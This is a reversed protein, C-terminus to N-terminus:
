WLKKPYINQAIMEQIRQITVEKDAKYTVGFWQATTDLVKVTAKQQEILNTVTAPIYFESKLENGEAKLFRIFDEGSQKFYHQSFGWFNMSVQADQPVEGGDKVSIIKDNKWGIAERETVNILHRKEDVKCVGRNVTGHESLTNKVPYGVMSYETSDSELRELYQAMVKFADAGYFDDANIVAFPENVANRAAWVAHNTGWPKTRGAPVKFGEPLDNLEQFVYDTAIKDSIKHIFRAKFAEEFDKRIVFVVKGFGARLADYVSYDMITEGNPGMQDLQKLGGYRSGMGAALIILTPKKM